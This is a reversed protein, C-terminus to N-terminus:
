SRPEGNRRAERWASATVKACSATLFSLFAGIGMSSIAALVIAPWGLRGDNHMVVLATGVAGAVVAGVVVIVAPAWGLNRNAGLQTTPACAAKPDVFNRTSAHRGEDRLRSPAHAASHTGMANAAVHAAVLVAFWVLATAWVFDLRVALALVVSVAAMTALLTRLRFQLPQPGPDGGDSLDRSEVQEEVDHAM